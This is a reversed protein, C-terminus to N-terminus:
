NNKIEWKKWDYDDFNTNKMENDNSKWSIDALALVRSIGDSINIHASPFNKPVFVMVGNESNSEVETYTGDTNKIIFIVSGQICSFYSNRKTHIHPGKIEGSKVSSVYVMKPHHELFEDYDRWIVTLSGNTHNDVIDKTDHQELKIIYDEKDL